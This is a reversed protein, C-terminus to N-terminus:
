AYEYWVDWREGDTLASPVIVGRSDLYRAMHRAEAITPRDLGIAGEKDCGAILNTLADVNRESM